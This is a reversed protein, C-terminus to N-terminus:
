GLEHWSDRRKDEDYHEAWFKKVIFFALLIITLTGIILTVYFNIRSLMALRRGKDVAYVVSFGLIFELILMGFCILKVVYVNSRWWMFGAISIFLIIMALHGIFIWGGVTSNYQEEIVPVIYERELNFYEEYFEGTNANMCCGPQTIDTCNLCMCRVKWTLNKDLLYDPLVDKYPNTDSNLDLHGGAGSTLGSYVDIPEDLYYVGLDCVGNVAPNQLAYLDFSIRNDYGLILGDEYSTNELNFDYIIIIVNFNVLDSACYLETTNTECATVNVTYSGNDLHSFLYSTETKDLNTVNLIGDFYITVNLEDTDQALWQLYYPMTINAGEEPYYITVNPPINIGPTYNMTFTFNTANWACLDVVDCCYANWIYDGNSVNNFNWSDTDSTGDYTKTENAAWAGTINTWVTCNKLQINTATVTMTVDPSFTFTTDNAPSDLYVEPPDIDLIGYWV